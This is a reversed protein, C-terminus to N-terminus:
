YLKVLNRHQVASIIAIEAVFQNKGQQSAVSLQKVAVLRGDLITGKYVPGFGGQGLRNAPSFGETATKLERKNQFGNRSFRKIASGDDSKNAIMETAGRM